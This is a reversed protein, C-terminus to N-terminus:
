MTKYFANKKLHSAQYQCTGGRINVRGVESISVDWRWYQCTGGRINDRGVEAISM